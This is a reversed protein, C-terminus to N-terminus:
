SPSPTRHKQLYEWVFRYLISKKFLLLLGCKYFIECVHVLSLKEQYPFIRTGTSCMVTWLVSSTECLRIFCVITLTQNAVLIVRSFLPSVASTLIRFLEVTIRSTLGFKILMSFSLVFIFFVDIMKCIVEVLFVNLSYPQEYVKPECVSILTPITWMATVPVRGSRRARVHYAAVLTGTVLSPFAIPEGVTSTVM